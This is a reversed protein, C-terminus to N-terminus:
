SSRPRSATHRALVDPHVAALHATLARRRAANYARFGLRPRDGVHVVRVWGAGQHWCQTCFQRERTLFRDVDRELITM